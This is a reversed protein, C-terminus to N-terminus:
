ETLWDIHRAPKYSQLYNDIPKLADHFHKWAKEDHDKITDLARKIRKVVRNKARTTPNITKCVKGEPTFYKRYYKSFDDFDIQAKEKRPLDNCKHADEIERKLSYYKDKLNKLSEGYILDRQDVGGKPPSAYADTEPSLESVTGLLDPSAEETEKVLENIHFTKGENMVLYHIERFGKGKLGRLPNGEFVITWSPGEKLFAFENGEVSLDLTKKYNVVHNNDPCRFSWDNKLQSVAFDSPKSTDYEAILIYDYNPPVGPYLTIKQAAPYKQELVIAAKKLTIYNLKPFFSTDHKSHPGKISKNKDLLEWCCDSVLVPNGSGAFLEQFSQTNGLPLALFGWKEEIGKNHEKYARRVIKLLHSQDLSEQDWFEALESQDSDSDNRKERNRGSIYKKSKSSGM